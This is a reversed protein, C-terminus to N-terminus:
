VRAREKGGLAGNQRQHNGHGFEGRAGPESREIERQEGPLSMGREIPRKGVAGCEIARAREAAEDEGCRWGAEGGVGVAIAREGDGNRGDEALRRFGAGM